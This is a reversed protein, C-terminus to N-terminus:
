PKKGKAAQEAAADQAAMRYHILVENLNAVAAQLQTGKSKDAHCSTAQPTDKTWGCYIELADVLINQAGVARNIAQCPFAKTPNAVCEDHHNRQAQEIFGKAGAITDRATNELPQCSVLFALVLAVTIVEFRLRSKM